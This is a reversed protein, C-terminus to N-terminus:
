HAKFNFNSFLLGGANNRVPLSLASEHPEEVCIYHTDIPLYNNQKFKLRDSVFFASSTMNM